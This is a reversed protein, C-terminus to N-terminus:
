VDEHCHICSDGFHFQREVYHGCCLCAHKEIWPVDGLGECYMCYEDLVGVRSGCGLCFSFRGQLHYTGSEGTERGVVMWTTQPAFEDRLFSEEVDTPNNLTFVIRRMREGRRNRRM